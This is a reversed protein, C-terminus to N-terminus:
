KQFGPRSCGFIANVHCFSLSLMGPNFTQHLWSCLAVVFSCIILNEVGM